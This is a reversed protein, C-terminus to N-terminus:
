DGEQQAAAPKPEEPTGIGMLERWEPDDFVDGSVAVDRFEASSDLDLASRRQAM